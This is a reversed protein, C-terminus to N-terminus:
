KRLRDLKDPQVKLRCTKHWSAQHRMMTVEFGDRYDIRRVNIAMPMYGLFQFQTLQKALSKYGSGVVTRKSKTLCKLATTTERPLPCLSELKCHM